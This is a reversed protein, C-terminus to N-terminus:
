CSFYLGALSTESVPPWTVQVSADNGLDHVPVDDSLNRADSGPDSLNREHGFGAGFGGM